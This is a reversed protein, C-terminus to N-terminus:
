PRLGREKSTEGRSLQIETLGKDRGAESRGLRVCEAEWSGIQSDTEQAGTGKAASTKRTRRGKPPGADPV